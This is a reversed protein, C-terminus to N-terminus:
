GTLSYTFTNEPLSKKNMYRWVKKQTYQVIRMDTFYSNGMIRQLRYMDSRLPEDAQRFLGLSENQGLHKSYVRSYIRNRYHSCQRNYMKEMSKYGSNQPIHSIFSHFLNRRDSGNDLTYIKEM